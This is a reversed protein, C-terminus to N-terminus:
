TFPNFFRSHNVFISVSLSAVFISATIGIAVWDARRFPRKAYWTRRKRKGFGRLDMANSINEIRDLTSFLLPIIILLANKFRHRLKAKKSMDLGRAQQSMSIDNYDRQIDPLYRLTLAVAFAAKYHVKVGNLASAFESPNTTLLFIIGLPVVSAYKMTKTGQYLLQEWTLTYRGFIHGFEHHTGYIMPGQEPAFLYSIVFNTLLFIVVYIVMLRIQSYKIKSVRLAWFSFVMIALIVRIDYSFMVAFTLLLFCIFKSLGSLEHIPTNLRNYSFVKIKM